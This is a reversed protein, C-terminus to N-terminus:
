ICVILNAEQVVRKTIKKEQKNSKMKRGRIKQLETICNKSSTIENSVCSREERVRNASKQGQLIKSSNEKFLTRSM